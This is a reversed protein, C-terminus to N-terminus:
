LITLVDKLTPVIFTATEEAAGAHLWIQDIHANKAGQIDSSYSDGIMIAEETSVGNKELAINFIGPQPKNIGVEESIITHTFCDALGSHAFKYYQVEMFGNSIITLPYKKALERVVEAAGPLVSFYKNTLRLFEEGMEYAMRVRSEQNTFLDTSQIRDPLAPRDEILLPRYFRQFHLWEKTVEGRGYMGWLELNYPKYAAIYDEATAYLAELHYNAYLEQLAKHEAGSWDGITDDWDLFIAKYPKM